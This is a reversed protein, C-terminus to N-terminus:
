LGSGGTTPTGSVGGEAPPTSGSGDSAGTIEVAAGSVTSGSAPTVAEGTNGVSASGGQDSNEISTPSSAPTSEPQTQPSGASGDVPVIADVASAAGSSDSAPLNVPQNTSESIPTPTLEPAVVVPDPIVIEPAPAVEVVAVNVLSQTGDSVFIQADDASAFAMWNFTVAEYAPNNLAVTFGTTDVNILTYKFNVDLAVNGM